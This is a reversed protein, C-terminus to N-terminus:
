AAPLLALMKCYAAELEILASVGEDEAMRRLIPMGSDISALVEERTAQRKQSYFEIRSPDGLQYLLSNGGNIVHFRNTTWLCSVGPNRAIMGAPETVGTPLNSDRRRARPMTLFPCAMVAFKACEAHCPPESTVRNVACMPGIVFTRVKGTHDGCIWCCGHRRAKVAKEMDAVRFEPRGDFWAVFWPVPYGRGDIPLRKMRGPVPPLDARLINASRQSHM